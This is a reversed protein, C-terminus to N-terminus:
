KLLYKKYHLVNITAREFVLDSCVSSILNWSCSRLVSAQQKGSQTVWHRGIEEKAFVRNSRKDRPKCACFRVVRADKQMIPELRRPETELWLTM